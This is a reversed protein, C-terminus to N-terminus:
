PETFKGSFVLSVFGKEEGGVGLLFAGSCHNCQLYNISEAIAGILPHCAANAWKILRREQVSVPANSVKFVSELAGMRGRMRKQYTPPLCVVVM